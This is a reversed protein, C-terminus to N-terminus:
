AFENGDRDLVRLRCVACPVNEGAAERLAAIVLSPNVSLESGCPLTLEWATGDETETLRNNAAELIPKLEVPVLEKKKTRKIATVSPQALLAEVTAPPCGLSLRYVASTVEGAKKVPLAASLIHLGEPMTADLRSVLEDLTMEYAPLFDRLFDQM